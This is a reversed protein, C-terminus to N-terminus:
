GVKIIVLTIDDSQPATGTFARIEGVLNGLLEPAPKARNARLFVALREDGYAENIENFAETVGDTYMVLIDGPRLALMTAAIAVDPVVGLAIGRSLSLEEVGGDRVLLPPNHGANVYTFQMAAPDLIGFFVTVFMSSRGDEYIWRNAQRIAASPEPAIGGSVHLLTRSLAMFLAASIGKGSVDAMVFGWRGDGAPIFDYFDGGIEMAPITTAAISIGPIVPASEPLFTDQIEKAIELERRYREKEAMTRRLNEISTRLDAAMTNFSDALDEFEDGTVLNVRHDLNGSGLAVAGAKLTDVPRTIIRALRWSLLVVIALLLCFLVAFVGVVRETQEAIRISTRNTELVIAASTKAVPALIEKVPMSVGFSWNPSPVPAYAVYYLDDGFQVRELGQKGATMNAAVGVLAPNRGSFVDDGAFKEDWRTGNAALGPRSIVTGRSDLLVPYGSGNLTIGLINDNISDIPVDTGIVWTGYRGTVAQSCTVVLGNGAADVYPESWVPRGGAAVAGTYWDRKRPDYEEPTNSNAPYRWMVGSESAIYISALDPDNEQVTKLLHIMGALAASEESERTVTTGSIFIAPSVSRSSLAAGEEVYWPAIFIGQPDRQLEAAHTALIDLEAETESFVIDTVAAQDSATHLLSQEASQMLAASSDNVAERGLSLSSKEALNGVSTINFLAVFGAVLLSIISLCLFLILIKARVNLRVKLSM